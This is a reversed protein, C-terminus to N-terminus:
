ISGKSLTMYATMGVRVRVRIVFMVKGFTSKLYRRRNHLMVTIGDVPNRFYELIAGGLAADPDNLYENFEQYRPQSMLVQRLAAIRTKRGTWTHRWFDVIHNM